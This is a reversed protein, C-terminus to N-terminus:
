VVSLPITKQELRKIRLIVDVTMIRPLTYFLMQEYTKSFLEDLDHCRTLITSLEQERRKTEQRAEKLSQDMLLNVFAEEKDQLFATM